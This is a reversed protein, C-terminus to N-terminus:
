HRYADSVTTREVCVYADNTYVWAVFNLQEQINTCDFTQVEKNISFYAIFSFPWSNPGAADYIDVNFVSEDFQDSFDSMASEVTTANPQVLNGAKNIMNVWGLGKKRAHGYNLFTM